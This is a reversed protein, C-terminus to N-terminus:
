RRGKYKEYDKRSVLGADVLARMCNPSLSRGHARMCSRIKPSEEPYSPCFRLYDGSCANRVRESYTAANAPIALTAAVAACVISKTKQRM